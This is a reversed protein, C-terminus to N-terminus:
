VLPLMMQMTDSNFIEVTDDLTVQTTIWGTETLEEQHSKFGNNALWADHARRSEGVYDFM